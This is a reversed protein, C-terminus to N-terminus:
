ASINSQGIDAGWIVLINPKDQASAFAPMLLVLFILKKILVLNKKM